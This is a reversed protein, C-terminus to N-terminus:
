VFVGELVFAVRGTRVGAFAAHFDVAVAHRGLPMAIPRRCTRVGAIENALTCVCVFSGHAAGTGCVCGLMGDRSGCGVVWCVGLRLCVLRRRGRRGQQEVGPLHVHGGEARRNPRRDGLQRGHLVVDRAGVPEVVGQAHRERETHYSIFSHLRGIDGLGVGGGCCLIPNARPRGPARSRAGRGAPWARRAAARGPPPAGGGRAAPPRSGSLRAPRSPPPPTPPHPHKTKNKPHPLPTTPPPHISPAPHQPHINKQPLSPTNSSERSDHTRPRRGGDM